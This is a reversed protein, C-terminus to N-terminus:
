EALARALARYQGLHNYVQASVRLLTRDGWGMVPVEIRHREWLRQQLADEFTPDSAPTLPFRAPPLIVTAMAGLMADPAPAEVGLAETRVGRAERALARNAARLADWGGPLLSGMFDLAAPVALM